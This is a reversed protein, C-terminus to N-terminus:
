LLYFPYVVIFELVIWNEMQTLNKIALGSDVSM